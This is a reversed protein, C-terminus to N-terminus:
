EGRVGKGHEIAYDLIDLDRKIGIIRNTKYHRNLEFYAGSDAYYNLGVDRFAQIMELSHTTAFIQVDLEKSLEFLARWFDRHNTYHIGNEIEDILIIDNIGHKKNLLTLIIDTVRKIADGFMTIPLSKQNEKKLYLMTDNISGVNYIGIEKIEPDIKQLISLLVKDRENLKALSYKKVMKEFNLKYPYSLFQVNFHDLLYNLEGFNNTDKGYNYQESSTEIKELEPIRFEIEETNSTISFNYENIDEQLNFKESLEVHVDLSIDYYSSYNYSQKKLAEELYQSSLHNFRSKEHYSFISSFKVVQKQNEHIGIIFGQHQSDEIFDDFFLNNWIYASDYNPTLISPEQRLQRLLFITKPQPSHNLLIAELLATKGSNNKGGILNVREFGEIKTHEFCRFNEIEIDKIM